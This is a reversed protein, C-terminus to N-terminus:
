TGLKLALISPLYRRIKCIERMSFESPIGCDAADIFPKLFRKWFFFKTKQNLSSGIGSQSRSRM